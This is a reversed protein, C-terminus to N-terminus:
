VLELSGWEWDSQCGWAVIDLDCDVYQVATKATRVTAGRRVTMRAAEANPVHQVTAESKQM